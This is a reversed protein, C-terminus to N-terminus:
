GALHEPERRTEQHLRFSLVFRTGSDTREFTIAGGMAEMSQRTTTLGLGVGKPKSTVFPEFAHEEFGPPPGGGNDEVIVVAMGTQRVSSVRVQSEVIKGVDKAAVAAEIANRVVNDVATVLLVPDADVTICPDLQVSLEVNASEPLIRLADIAERVARELQIPAWQARVPRGLSLLSKALHSLRALQSRVIRASLEHGEGNHLDYSTAATIGNLTNKVEHAILSAAVGLKAMKEEETVRTEMERFGMYTRRVFLAFAMWTTLQVAVLFVLQTALRKRIPANVEDFRSLLWLDLSGRVRAAFARYRIGNESFDLGDPARAEASRAFVASPVGRSSPLAFVLDSGDALAVHQAPELSLALPQDAARAVGVVYGVVSSSKDQVPVLIVWGDLGDGFSDAVPRGCALARQFWRLASYGGPRRFREEPAATVVRGSLDLLAVGGSFLPSESHSHQFLIKEPQFSQVAQSVEPRRAIRRLESEMTLIELALADAYLRAEHAGRSRLQRQVEDADIYYSLLPGLLSLLGM